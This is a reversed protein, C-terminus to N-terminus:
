LLGPSLAEQGMGQISGHPDQGWLGTRLPFSLLELQPWPPKRRPGQAQLLPDALQPQSSSSPLARFHSANCQVQLNSQPPIPM